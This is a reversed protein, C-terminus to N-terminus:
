LFNLFGSITNEGFDKNLCLLHIEFIESNETTEENNQNQNPPASAKKNKEIVTSSTTTSTTPNNNHDGGGGRSSNIQNNKVQKMEHINSSDFDLRAEFLDTLVCNTDHYHIGISTTQYFHILSM